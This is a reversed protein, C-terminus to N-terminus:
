EILSKIKLKNNDTSCVFKETIQLLKGEYNVSKNTTINKITGTLNDNVLIEENKTLYIDSLDKPKELTITTWTDENTDYKGYKIKTIKDNSLEGMYVRNDSDVGIMTLNASDKLKLKNVVGNTYSYFNKNLSDEYLLVDNRQVAKMEGLSSIKSAITKVYYNIDIRYIKSNYGTRSVGVYHTNTKISSVINDIVIGEEYNCLEKIESEYDNRVNYTLINVKDNYNNSKVREAIMLINEDAIWNSFLITRGSDTLIEKTEMTNTDFVYLRDNDYYSIFKSSDSAKINKATSPINFDLDKNKVTKDENVITFSSADVFLVRDLYVFVAVQMMISLLAWIIVKTFNKM